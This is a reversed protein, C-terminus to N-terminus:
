PFENLQQRYDRPTLGKTRKFLRNFHTISNFGSETALVDITHKREQMLKCAYGIRLENVFQVFPKQTRSKFYRCFSFENMNALAAIESLPIDRRFNAIIFQFLREMRQQDNESYSNVYEPSSLFRCDTAEMLGNLLHLFAVLKGMGEQRFLAKFRNILETKVAGAYVIGRRSNALWQELAKKGGFGALSDVLQDPDIYLALTHARLQESGEFYKKDNYWVHPVGSGLFVLEGHEFYEVNDGVIRQGSSAVIYTLQCEHHFHFETSYYPQVIERTQFVRNESANIGLIAQVPKM